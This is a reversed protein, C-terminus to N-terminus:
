VKQVRRVQGVDRAPGGRERRWRRVLPWSAVGILLAFLHGWDAMPDAFAILENVLVLATGGALLLRAWPVLLGALSGVAATVGFSIGYDLRHLSSDPLHGTLVSLAIPVETVLTTAAHGLLFIGATRWGGIRRELATLVVLFALAYPSTLGGAIWLASAVMVLAPAQALGEVDTSSVQLLRDVLHPDAYETFLSTVALVLAYGFTFPTATPTPLLRRLFQRWPRVEERRTVAGVM